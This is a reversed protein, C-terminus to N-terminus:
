VKATAAARFHDAIADVLAPITYTGPQVTVEIGLERAADTTVPGITAVVTSKLLDVAQDAGYAKAFSRVASASTFTVVDIRGELLLRYVDPRDEADGPPPEGASLGEDPITRYAVVSTV